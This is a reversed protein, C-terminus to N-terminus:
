VRPLLGPNTLNAAGSRRDLQQQALRRNTLLSHERPALALGCDLLALAADFQNRQCLAVAENNIAALLNHRAGSRAPDLRLAVLNAAIAPSLEGREFHITGRKFYM